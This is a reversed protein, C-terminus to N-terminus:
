TCYVLIYLVHSSESAYVLPHLSWQFLPLTASADAVM